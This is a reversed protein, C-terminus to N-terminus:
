ISFRLRWYPPLGLTSYHSGVPKSRLPKARLLQSRGFIADHFSGMPPPASISGNPLETSSRGSLAIQPSARSGKRAWKELRLKRCRLLRSSLMRMRVFLLDARPAHSCRPHRARWAHPPCPTRNRGPVHHHMCWIRTPITHSIPSCCWASTAVRLCM